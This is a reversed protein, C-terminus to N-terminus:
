MICVQIGPTNRPKRNISEGVQVQADVRQDVLRKVVLAHKARRLLPVGPTTITYYTFYVVYHIYHYHTYYALCLTYSITYVIYVYIDYLTIYSSRGINTSSFPMSGMHSSLYPDPLVIGVYLIRHGDWVYVYWGCHQNYSTHAGDFKSTLWCSVHIKSLSGLQPWFVHTYIYICVGM